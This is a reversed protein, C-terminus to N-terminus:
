DRCLQAWQARRGSQGLRKAKDQLGPCRYIDGACSDSNTLRKGFAPFTHQVHQGEDQYRGGNRVAAVDPSLGLLNAVLTTGSHHLGRVFIWRQGTADLTTGGTASSATSNGRMMECNM